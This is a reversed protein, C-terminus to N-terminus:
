WFANADGAAICQWWIDVADYEDVRGSVLVLM